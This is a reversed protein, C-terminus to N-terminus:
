RWILILFVKYNYHHYCHCHLLLLLLPLPLPLIKTTDYPRTFLQLRIVHTFQIVRHINLLATVTTCNMVYLLNLTYYKTKKTKTGRYKKNFEAGSYESQPAASSVVKPSCCIVLLVNMHSLHDYTLCQPTADTRNYSGLVKTKHRCVTLRSCIVLIVCILNFPCFLAM